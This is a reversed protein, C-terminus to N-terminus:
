RYRLTPKSGALSVTTKEPRVLVRRYRDPDGLPAPSTQGLHVDASVLYAVGAVPQERLRQLQRAPEPERIAERLGGHGVREAVSGAM